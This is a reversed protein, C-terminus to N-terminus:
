CSVCRQDCDIATRQDIQSPRSSPCKKRSVRCQLPQFLDVSTTITSLPHRPSPHYSLRAPMCIRLSSPPPRLSPSSRLGLLSRPPLVSALALAAAPAESPLSLSPLLPSRSHLLSACPLARIATLHFPRSSFLLPRCLFLASPSLCFPRSTRLSLSLSDVANRRRRLQRQHLPPLHRLQWPPPRMPAMSNCGAAARGEPTAAASTPTTNCPQQPHPDWSLPHMEM